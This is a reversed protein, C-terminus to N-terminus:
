QNDSHAQNLLNFNDGDIPNSLQSVARSRNGYKGDTSRELRQEALSSNSRKRLERSKSAENRSLEHLNGSRMGLQKAKQDMEEATGRGYQEQQFELMRKYAATDIELDKAELFEKLRRNEHELMEKDTKVQGITTELISLTKQM